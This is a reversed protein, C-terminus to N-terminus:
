KMTTNNRKTGAGACPSSRSVAAALGAAGIVLAAIALGTPADGDSSKGGPAAIRATPSAEGHVSVVDRPVARESLRVVPAPEDSDASGIWRVVTGDEYRQIAKWAIPGERVPNRAIFTLMGFGDPHIRGGSWRLEAIRNGARVLRTQWGPATGILAFDVGAPVRVRIAITDNDGENPVLLRYLQLDGPRGSAPELTIHAAAPPAGAATLALALLGRRAASRVTV